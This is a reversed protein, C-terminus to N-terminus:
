VDRCDSGQNTWFKRLLTSKEVGALAQQQWHQMGDKSCDWKVKVTSIALVEAEESARLVNKYSKKCKV